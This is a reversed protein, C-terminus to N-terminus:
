DPDEWQCVTTASTGHTKQLYMGWHSFAPSNGRWSKEKPQANVDWICNIKFWSQSPSAHSQSTQAKSDSHTDVIHITLLDQDVKRFWHDGRLVSLLTAREYDCLPCTPPKGKIWEERTPLWLKRRLRSRVASEYHDSACGAGETPEEERMGRQNYM